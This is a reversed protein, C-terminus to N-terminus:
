FKGIDTIINERNLIVYSPYDYIGMSTSIEGQEELIIPYDKPMKKQLSNKQWEAGRFFIYINSDPFQLGANKIVEINKNFEFSLFLCVTEKNNVQGQNLTRVLMNSEKLSFIQKSLVISNIFLISILVLITIIWFTFNM